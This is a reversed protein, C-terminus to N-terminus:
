PVTKNLFDNWNIPKHIFCYDFVFSWPYSQYEASPIVKVASEAYNALEKSFRITISAGTNSPNIALYFDYICDIFQEWRAWTTETSTEISNLFDYFDCEEPYDDNIFVITEGSEKIYKTGNSLMQNCGQVYKHYFLQEPPGYRTSMNQWFLILDQNSQEGSFMRFQFVFELDKGTQMIMALDENNIHTNPYFLFDSFLLLFQQDSTIYPYDNRPINVTTRSGKWFAYKSKSNSQLMEQMEVDYKSDKRYYRLTNLIKEDKLQIKQQEIPCLKTVYFVLKTEDLQRSCPSMKLAENFNELDDYFSTEVYILQLRSQLTAWINKAQKHMRPSHREAFDILPEIILHRGGRMINEDKPNLYLKKTREKTVLFDKALTVTTLTVTELGHFVKAAFLLEEMKFNRFMGNITLDVLHVKINSQSSQFEYNYGFYFCHLAKASNNKVASQISAYVTGSDFMDDLYQDKIHTKEDLYQRLSYDAPNLYYEKTEAYTVNEEPKASLITIGILEFQGQNM